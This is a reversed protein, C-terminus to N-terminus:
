STWGAVDFVVHGGASTYLSIKGSAGVKAVVLNPRTEGSTYNLDSALPRAAGAPFITLFGAHRALRRHRQLDGGHGRHRARRGPRSRSTWRPTPRGRASSVTGTPVPGPGPSGSPWMPSDLRRHHRVADGDDDSHGPVHDGGLSENPENCSSAVATYNADGSYAAVWRYTGPMTAVFSGSAATPSPGGALTRPGSSFAQPGACTADDPGYATFSVTGSLQAAPADAGPRDRCGPVRQRHDRHAHGHHHDTPRRPLRHEHHQVRKSRLRRVGDPHLHGDPRPEDPYRTALPRLRDAARAPSCRSPSRAPRVRPITLTGEGGPPVLRWRGPSEETAEWTGECGANGAPSSVGLVAGALGYVDPEVAGGACDAAGNSCAPHLGIDTVVAPLSTRRRRTTRSGSPPRSRRASSATRSAPVPTSSSPPVRRRPRGSRSRWSHSLLFGVVTRRAGGM